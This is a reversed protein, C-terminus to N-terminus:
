VRLQVPAAAQPGREIFQEEVAARAFDGSFDSLRRDPIQPFVPCIGADIIISPVDVQDVWPNAIEGQLLHM